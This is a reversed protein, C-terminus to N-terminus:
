GARRYSFGLLTVIVMLVALVLAVGIAFGGFFGENTLGVTVVLLLVPLLGAALVFMAADRRPGTRSNPM